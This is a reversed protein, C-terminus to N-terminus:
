PLIGLSWSATDNPIDIYISFTLITGSELNTFNGDLQYIDGDGGNWEYNVAVSTKYSLNVYNLIDYTVGASPGLPGDVDAIVVYSGGEYIPNTNGSLPSVNFNGSYALSLITQNEDESYEAENYFGGIYFDNVDITGTLNNVNSTTFTSWLIDSSYTATGTPGYIDNIDTIATGITSFDPLYFKATSPVVPTIESLTIQRTEGDQVIPVLETGSVTGSLPLESIKLSM